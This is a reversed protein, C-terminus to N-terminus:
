QPTHRKTTGRGRSPRGRYPGRQSSSGRHRKFPQSHEFSDPPPRSGRETSRGRKTPYSSRKAQSISTIARNIRENNSELTVSSMPKHGFLTEADFPASILGPRFEAPLTSATLAAQRRWVLTNALLTSTTDVMAQNTQLMGRAITQIEEPSAEDKFRKAPEEGPSTEFLTALLLRLLNFQMESAAALDLALSEVQQM